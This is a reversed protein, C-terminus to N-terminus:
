TQRIPHPSSISLVQVDFIFNISSSDGSLGVGGGWRTFRAVKVWRGAVGGRRTVAM